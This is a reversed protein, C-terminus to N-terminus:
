LETVGAKKLASEIDEICLQIDEEDYEDIDMFDTRATILAEIMEIYTNKIESITLSEIDPKKM